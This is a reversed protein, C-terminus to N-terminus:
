EYNEGRYKKYWAAWMAKQQKKWKEFAQDAYNEHWDKWFADSETKWDFPVAVYHRHTPYEPDDYKSCIMYGKERDEWEAEFDDMRAAVISPYIDLMMDDGYIDIKVRNQM